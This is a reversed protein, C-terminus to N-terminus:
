IEALMMLVAPNKSSKIDPSEAPIEDIGIPDGHERMHKLMFNLPLSLLASILVGVLILAIISQRGSRKIYIDIAKIGTFASILAIVGFFISMEVNLLGLHLFHTVVSTRAIMTIYQNTGSMVTPLMNYSLFLPGLVMGGAIGTLGCLVAAIFCVVSIKILSYLSDFKMDNPHFSYGDRNKIEHAHKVSRVSYVTLLLMSLVFLGVVVHHVEDSVNPDKMFTQCSFLCAFATGIFLFRKLTFHYQEEHM